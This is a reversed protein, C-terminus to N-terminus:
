EYYKIWEVSGDDSLKIVLAKTYLPWSLLHPQDLIYYLYSKDERYYSPEGFLELVEKKKLKRAWGTYLSDDLMRLRFPYEDNNKIQWKVKDFVIKDEDKIDKQCAYCFLLLAIVIYNKM